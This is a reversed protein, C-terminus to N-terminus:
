KGDTNSNDDATFHIQSKRRLDTMISNVQCSLTLYYEQKERYPEERRHEIMDAFAVAEELMDFKRKEKILGTRTGTQRDYLEMSEIGHIGDLILTHKRGYIECPLFSDAIKGTLMTVDFNEYRFVITGIGDVQTRIKRHFYYTEKPVGFLEVAAYILYVGLDALAGGSFRPSFINPEEGELVADYRSSYKMFTLNAGEIEGIEKVKEKLIAFNEEYIHRAAEFFCVDKDRLVNKIENMEFCNSFAPKEVIVHKGSQIALLCQEYHYSNPSAIYVVDFENSHFFRQLDTEYYGVQYKSGFEKAKEMSRSYVATITYRESLLAADVFAGTIWNTGIIGLRLM